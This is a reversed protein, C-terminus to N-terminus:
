APAQYASVILKVFDAVIENKGIAGGRRYWSPTASIMTFGAITMIKADMDVRVVQETQGEELLSQFFREYQRREQRIEAQHDPSLHRFERQFVSAHELRDVTLRVMDELFARIRDEVAGDRTKAAELNSMMESHVSEIVAFLLEEKSATYYYISGKLLGLREGIEQMSADEYGNAAFVQVAAELVEPTRRPM